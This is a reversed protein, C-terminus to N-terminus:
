PASEALPRVSKLQMSACLAPVMVDFSRSEDSLLWGVFTAILVVGAIALGYSLARMFNLLPAKPIIFTKLVAQLFPLALAMFLHPAEAQQVYRCATLAQRRRPRGPARVEQANFFVGFGFLVFTAAGVLMRLPFLRAPWFSIDTVYALVVTLGGGLMFMQSGRRLQMDDRCACATACVCGCVQSVGHWPRLALFVAEGRGMASLLQMYAALELAILAWSVATQALFARQQAREAPWATTLFPPPLADDAAPAAARRPSGEEEGEAPVTPLHEEFAKLAEHLEETTQPFRPATNSLTGIGSDPNQRAARGCRAATAGPM